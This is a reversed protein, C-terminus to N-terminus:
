KIDELKSFCKRVGLNSYNTSINRDCILGFGGSSSGLRVVYNKNPAWYTFTGEEVNKSPLGQKTYSDSLCDDLSIKKSKQMLTDQDLKDKLLIIKKNFDFVHYHVYLDDGYMKFDADIWEARTPKRLETIENYVERENEKAYKLFERMENLNLMKANEKCFLDQCENFDSGLYSREKAVYLKILPVYIYGEKAPFVIQNEPQKNEQVPAVVPNLKNQEKRALYNEGVRKYFPNVVNLKEDKM